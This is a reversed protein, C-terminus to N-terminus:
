TQELKAPFGAMTSLSLNLSCSFFACSSLIFSNSEVPM